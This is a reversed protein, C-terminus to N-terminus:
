PYVGVFRRDTKRREEIRRDSKRRQEKRREGNEIKEKAIRAQRNRKDRYSERM